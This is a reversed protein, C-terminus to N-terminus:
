RHLGEEIQTIVTLATNKRKQAEIGHGRRGRSRRVQLRQRRSHHRRKPPTQAKKQKQQKRNHALRNEIKRATEAPSCAGARIIWDAKEYAPRREALLQKVKKRIESKESTGILPRTKWNGALRGALEKEGCSLYIVLSQKRLGALGKGALAEGGGLAIVRGRGRAFKRVVAAELVRFYDLGGNKILEGPASGKLRTVEADTDLFKMGLRKALLRGTSTKGACMFGALFINRIEGSHFPRPMKKAM